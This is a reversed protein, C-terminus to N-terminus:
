RMRRCGPRARIGVQASLQYIFDAGRHAPEVAQDSVEEVLAAEFAPRELRPEIPAIRTVDHVGGNFAGAICQGPVRQGDRHGFVHLGHPRVEGEGLVHQGVQQQIGGVVRRRRRGYEDGGANLGAALPHKEGHGIAAGSKGRGHASAQELFKDLIIIRPRGPEAKPRDITRPKM